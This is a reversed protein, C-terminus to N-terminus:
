SQAAPAVTAPTRQTDTSAFASPPEVPHQDRHQRQEREGGEVGDLGEGARDAVQARRDGGPARARAPRGAAASRRDRGAREAAPPGPRRRGPPRGRASRAAHGAPVPPLTRAARGPSGRRGRRRSRPRSSSRSSGGAATGRGRAPAPSSRRDRCVHAAGPPRGCSSRPPRAPRAGTRRSCGPCRSARTGRPSRRPARGRGAAPRGGPSPGLAEPHVRYGRRHAPAPATPLGAGARRRRGHGGAYARRQEHEVLRRGVEVRRGRTRQDLVDEGRRALGGNQQDGVPGLPELRASSSSSSLLPAM